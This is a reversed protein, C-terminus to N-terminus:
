PKGEGPAPLTESIALGSIEVVAELAREAAV